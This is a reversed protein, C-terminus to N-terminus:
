SVGARTIVAAPYPRLGGGTPADDVGWALLSLGGGEWPATGSPVRGLLSRPLRSSGFHGREREREQFGQMSVKVESWMCAWVQTCCPRSRGCLDNEELKQSKPLAFVVEHVLLIWSVIQAQSNSESIEELGTKGTM